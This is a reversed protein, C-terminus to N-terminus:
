QSNKNQLLQSMSIRSSLSLDVYKSPMVDSRWGGLRKLQSETAGHAAAATAGGRKGSHEGYLKPDCGLSQLLKKLDSLASSYPVPKVPNPVNKATCLPVLCGSYSPGLFQFYNLTLKVPCIEENINSAVIRESGESYQDNKGGQFLIQLHPSPSSKYIVDKRQLKVIDSFRGLTHYEMSVRWITRWLVLSARLGDRGNVPRYLHFYMKSLIDETIPSKPARMQPHENRFGRFLLSITEHVTPSPLMRVRYEHAIVSSLMVVKSYSGDRLMVLSLCAALQKHDAGFEPIGNEQCFAAWIEYVRNYQQKTSDRVSKSLYYQSIDLGASLSSEYELAVVDSSSCSESIPDDM